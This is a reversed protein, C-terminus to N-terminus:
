HKAYTRALNIWKGSAHEARERESPWRQGIAGCHACLIHLPSTFVWSHGNRRCM